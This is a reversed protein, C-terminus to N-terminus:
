LIESPSKVDTSIARRKFLNDPRRELTSANKNVFTRQM